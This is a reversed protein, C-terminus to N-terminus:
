EPVQGTAAAGEAALQANYEPSGPVIPAPTEVEPATTENSM